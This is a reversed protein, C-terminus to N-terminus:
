ASPNGPDVVVPEATRGLIYPLNCIIILDKGREEDVLQAFPMLNKNTRALQRLKPTAVDRPLVKGGDGLAKRLEKDMREALLQEKVLTVSEVLTYATWRRHECRMEAEVDMGELSRGQWRALHFRAAALSSRRNHELCGTWGKQYAVSGWAGASRPTQDKGILFYYNNYVHNIRQAAALTERGAKDGDLVAFNKAEFDAIGHGGPVLMWQSADSDYTVPVIMPMGDNVGSGLIKEWAWIREAMIINNVESGMVIFVHSFPVDQRVQECYRNFDWTLVNENLLRTAVFPSSGPIPRRLLPLDAMIGDRVAPSADVLVLEPFRADALDRPGVAPDLPATALRRSIEGFRAESEPFHCLLMLERVIAMGIGGLGLVMVRPVRGGEGVTMPHMALLREGLKEDHNFVHTWVREQDHNLPYILGADRREDFSRIHAYIDTRHAPEGLAPYSSLLAAVNQMVMLNDRSSGTMVWVRRPTKWLAVRLDSVSEGEGAWVLAGLSEVESVSPNERSREIVVVTRADAGENGQRLEGIVTERGKEGLGIVVVLDARLTGWLLGRLGLASAVRFLQRRWVLSLRVAVSKVAALVGLLPLILPALLRLVQMAPHGTEETSAGAFFIKLALYAADAVALPMGSGGEDEGFVFCLGVLVLYIVLIYLSTRTARRVLGAYSGSRQDDTRQGDDLAKMM